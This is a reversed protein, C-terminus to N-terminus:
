SPPFKAVATDRTWRINRFICSDIDASDATGVIRIGSATINKINAFTLGKIRLNRTGSIGVMYSGSTTMRSGDFTVLEGPYASLIFHHGNQGSKSTDLYLLSDTSNFFYTGQRFYVTVDSSTVRPTGWVAYRFDNWPSALTGTGNVTKSGDVYFTQALTVKSCLVLGLGLFAQLITRKM